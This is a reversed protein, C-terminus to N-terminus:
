FLGLKGDSYGKVSYGRSNGSHHPNLRLDHRDEYTGLHEDHGRCAYSGSIDAWSPAGFAHSSGTLSVCIAALTYPFSKM